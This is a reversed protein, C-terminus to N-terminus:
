VLFNNSIIDSIYGHDLELHQVIAIAAIKVISDGYTKGFLFEQAFPAIIESILILKQILANL